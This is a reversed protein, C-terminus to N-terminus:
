PLGLQMGDHAVLVNKLDGFESALLDAAKDGSLHSLIIRTDPHSISYDKIESIGVHSTELIAVDCDELHSNIEDFSAVDGSYFLTVDEVVVRLSCSQM